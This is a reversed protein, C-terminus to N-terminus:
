EGVRGSDVEATVHRQVAQQRVRLWACRCFQELVRQEGRPEGIDQVSRRKGPAPGVVLLRRHDTTNNQAEQLDHRAVTDLHRLEVQSIRQMSWVRHTNAQRQVRGDAQEVVRAVREELEHEVAVPADHAGDLVAVGASLQEDVVSLDVVDGSAGVSAGSKAALVVEVTPANGARGVPPEFSVQRGTGGHELADVASRCQAGPLQSSVRHLAPSAPSLLDSESVTQVHQGRRLLRGLLRDGVCALEADASRGHQRELFVQRQDVLVDLQRPLVVDDTQGRQLLAIPVEAIM